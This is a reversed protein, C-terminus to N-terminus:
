RDLEWLELRHGEPDCLYCVWAGWPHYEVSGPEVGQRQLTQRVPEIASVQLAQRIRPQHAM